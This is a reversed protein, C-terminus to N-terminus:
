HSVSVLLHFEQRTVPMIDDNDHLQTTSSRWTKTRQSQVVSEAKSKQTPPSAEAWPQNLIQTAYSQRVSRKAFKQAQNDSNYQAKQFPVEPPADSGRISTFNIPSLLTPTSSM